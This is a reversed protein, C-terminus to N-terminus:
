LVFGNRDFPLSSRKKFFHNITHRKAESLANAFDLLSIPRFFADSNINLVNCSFWANKYQRLSQCIWYQLSLAGESVSLAKM